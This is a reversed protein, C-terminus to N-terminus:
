VGKERFLQIDDITEGDDNQWESWGGNEYVELGFANATVEPDELYKNALEDIVELAHEPSQAAYYQPLRPPNTICWVRYLKREEAM